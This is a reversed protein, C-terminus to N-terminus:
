VDKDDGGVKDDGGLVVSSARQRWGRTEDFARMAADDDGAYASEDHGSQAQDLQNLDSDWAEARAIAKKLAPTLCVKYKVPSALIFELAPTDGPSVGQKMALHRAYLELAEKRLGIEAANIALSLLHVANKLDAVAMAENFMDVAEDHQGLENLAHAINGLSIHSPAIESVALLHKLAEEPKGMLLLTCAMNNVHGPEGPNLRNANRHCEYAEQLKGLCDNIRGLAAYLLAADATDATRLTNKVDRMIGKLRLESLEVCPDFLEGLYQTVKKAPVPMAEGRNIFM